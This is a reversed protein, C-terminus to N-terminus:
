NKDSQGANDRPREGGDTEEKPDRRKVSGGVGGVGAEESPVWIVLQVPPGSCRLVEVTAKGGMPLAAGQDWSVFKIINPLM